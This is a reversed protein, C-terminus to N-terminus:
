GWIMWILLIKGQLSDMQSYGWKYSVGLDDLFDCVCVNLFSYICIFIFMYLWIYMSIDYMDEMFDHFMRSLHATAKRGETAIGLLQYIGLPPHPPSRPDLPIQQFIDM